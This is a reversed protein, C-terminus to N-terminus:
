FGVQAFMYGPYKYKPSNYLLFRGPAKIIKVFGFDWAIAVSNIFCKRPKQGPATAKPLSQYSRLPPTAM